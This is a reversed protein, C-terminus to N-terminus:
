RTTAPPAKRLYLSLWTASLDRRYHTSLYDTLGLRRQQDLDLVVQEPRYEQMCKLVLKHTIQGSWVRKDPIVALEPPAPLGAWFAATLNKTFIWHTRKARRRIALVLANNQVKPVAQLALLHRRVAVSGFVLALSTAASWVLLVGGMRLKAALTRIKWRYLTRFGDVLGIAGLWALPLSFHLRYYYWYPRHWLHIALATELLIVPFLLDWRRKAGIWALGLASPGVLQLDDLLSAPRFGYGPMASAARTGMSFHSAWFVPLTNSQYFLMAILGFASLAGASWVAFNRAADRARQAAPGGQRPARRPEALVLDLALAPLFIAATLKVQLACGFLAGSILRWPGGGGAAYRSWAWVSAMALAMSPVTLMVSVSLNLFSTSSILLAVAVLGAARGSRRRVAGYLCAILLMAFGVTLLRAAYASPGFVRFVMATIETHLPPQDDWFPGYLRFGRSVLLAKMLEYGEDGGFQLATALPAGLWLFLGFAVPVGGDLIRVWIKPKEPNMTSQRLGAAYCRDRGKQACRDAFVQDIQM